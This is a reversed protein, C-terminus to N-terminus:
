CLLERNIRRGQSELSAWPIGLPDRDPGVILVLLTGSTM